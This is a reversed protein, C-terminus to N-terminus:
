RLAANVPKAREIAIPLFRKNVAKRGFSYEQRLKVAFDDNPRKNM